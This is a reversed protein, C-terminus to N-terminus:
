LAYVSSPIDAIFAERRETNNQFWVILFGGTGQGPSELAADSAACFRDHPLSLVPFQRRPQLSLVSQLIQFCSMLDTSLINSREYQKEKIAHLGGAGVRGFVGQEFFNALGYIKSAVGPTLSDSQISSSILGSLKSVLKDKVWFEVAGTAM